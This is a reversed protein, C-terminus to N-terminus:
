VLQSTTLSCSIHGFERLTWLLALVWRVLLPTYLMSLNSFRCLLLKRQEKAEKSSLRVMSILFM